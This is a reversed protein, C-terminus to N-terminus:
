SKSAATWSNFSKAKLEYLTKGKAFYQLNMKMRNKHKVIKLLEQTKTM